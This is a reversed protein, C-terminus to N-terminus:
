GHRMQKSHPQSPSLPTMKGKGKRLMQKSGSPLAAVDPTARRKEKGALM